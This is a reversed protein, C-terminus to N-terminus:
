NTSLSKSPLSSYANLPPDGGLKVRSVRPDKKSGAGITIFLYMGNCLDPPQKSYRIPDFVPSNTISM